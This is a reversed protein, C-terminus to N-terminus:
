PIPIGYYLMRKETTEIIGEPGHVWSHVRWVPDDKSLALGTYKRYKFAKAAIKRANAHCDCPEGKRLISPMGKFFAGLDLLIEALGEEIDKNVVWSVQFRRGAVRCLRRKLLQLDPRLAFPVKHWKAWYKAHQTPTMNNM